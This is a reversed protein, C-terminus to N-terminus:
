YFAKKKAVRPKYNRNTIGGVIQQLEEESLEVTETPLNQITIPNVSDNTHTILKKHSM